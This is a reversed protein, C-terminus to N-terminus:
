SPLMKELDEIYHQAYQTGFLFIPIGAGQLASGPSLMEPMGPAGKPGEFRIVLACGKEIEGKMIAAFAADEGDFVRAPGRFETM